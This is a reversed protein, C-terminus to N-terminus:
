KQYLVVAKEDEYDYYSNAKAVLGLDVSKQNPRLTVKTSLTEGLYVIAEGVGNTQDVGFGGGGSMTVSAKEVPNNDKDYVRAFVRVRYEGPGGVTAVSGEQV